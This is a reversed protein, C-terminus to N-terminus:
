FGRVKMRTGPRMKETKREADANRESGWAVAIVLARENTTASPPLMRGETSETSRNTKNNGAGCLAACDTVAVVPEILPLILSPVPATRGPTVIVTDLGEICPTRVAVVPSSPVYRKGATGGPSYLIVYSSLPNLVTTRSPMRTPSPNVAVMLASSCTAVRCSVTVTEPSDGTTSTLEVAVDVL